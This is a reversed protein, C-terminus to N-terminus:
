EGTLDEKTPEIKIEMESSEFNTELKVAVTDTGSETKLLATTELKIETDSERKIEIRRRKPPPQGLYDYYTPKKDIGAGDLSASNGQYLFM